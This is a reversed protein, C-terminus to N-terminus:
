GDMFSMRDDDKNIRADLATVYHAWRLHFYHISSFTKFNRFEDM